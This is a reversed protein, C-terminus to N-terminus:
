TIALLTMAPALLPKPRWSYGLVIAHDDRVVRDHEIARAEDEPALTRRRRPIRADTFLMMANLRSYPTVTSQPSERPVPFMTAFLEHEPVVFVEVLRGSADDPAAVQDAVREEDVEGLSVEM